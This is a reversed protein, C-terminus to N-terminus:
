SAAEADRRARALLWALLISAGIAMNLGAALRVSGSLGLAGLLYLAGALSGAAAGLTNVAYLVAVARGVHGSVRVTHAVLLPLTAGMLLTPILVLLLSLAATGATSTGLGHDGVWRFLDLSVFGYLGTALEVCAFIPLLPRRPDASVAGGALSGLGLGLMFGTVVVTVSEVNTGFITFLSRQWAVQYLLAAFGSALFVLLLHVRPVVVEPVTRTGTRTGPIKTPMM